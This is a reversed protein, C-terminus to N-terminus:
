KGLSSIANASVTQWDVPIAATQPAAEPEYAGIKDMCAASLEEFVDYLAASSSDSQSYAFLTASAAKIASFVDRLPLIKPNRFLTYILALGCIFTSHV